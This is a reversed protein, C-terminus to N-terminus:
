ALLASDAPVERFGSITLNCYVTDATATASNEVDALGYGQTLIVHGRGIVALSLGPVPHASVYSNVLENIAPVPQPATQTAALSGVALVLVALTSNTAERSVV